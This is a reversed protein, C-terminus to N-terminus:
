STTFTEINVATTEATLEQTANTNSPASGGAIVAGSTSGNGGQNYVGSALSPATYWASGNWSEVSTSAPTGPAGL